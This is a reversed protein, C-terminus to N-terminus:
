HAAEYQEVIVAPIRGRENVRLGQAKAWERIQPSRKRDQSGRHTVLARGVRKGTGSQRAGKDAFPQIAERLKKANATSLDIEYHTGNLSFTVTEDATGGDLDDVLLVEIKRAM